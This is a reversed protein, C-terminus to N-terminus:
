ERIVSNKAGSLFHTEQLQYIFISMSLFSHSKLIPTIFYYDFKADHLKPRFDNKHNWILERQFWAYSKLGFQVRILEIVMM